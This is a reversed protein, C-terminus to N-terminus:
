ITLRSQEAYVNSLLQERSSRKIWICIISPPGDAGISRGTIIENTWWGAAKQRKTYIRLKNELSQYIM